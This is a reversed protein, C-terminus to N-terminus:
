NKSHSILINQQIFYSIILLKIKIDEAENEFLM